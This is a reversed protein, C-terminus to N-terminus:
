GEMQPFPRHGIKGRIGPLKEMCRSGQSYYFLFWVRSHLVVFVVSPELAKSENETLEPIGRASLGHGYALGDCSLGPSRLLALEGQPLSKPGRSPGARSTGLGVEKLGKLGPNM